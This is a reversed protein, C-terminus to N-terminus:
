LEEVRFDMSQLKLNILYEGDDHRLEKLQVPLNDIVSSIITRTLEVNYSEISGDVVIINGPELQVRLYILDALTSSTPDLQADAVQVGIFSDEINQNGLYDPIMIQRIHDITDSDTLGELEFKFRFRIMNGEDSIVDEEQPSSINPVGGKYTRKYGRKYGRKHGRKYNKHQKNKHKRTKHSLRNKNVGSKRNKNKRTSYHKKSLRRM